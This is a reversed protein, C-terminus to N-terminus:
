KGVGKWSLYVYAGVSKYWISDKVIKVQLFKQCLAYKQCCEARFDVKGNEYMKNNRFYCDPGFM